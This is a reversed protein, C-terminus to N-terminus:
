KFVWYKQLTFNFGFAVFADVILRSIKYNIRFFETFVYTGTSKLFITGLAVTIFKPIQTKKSETTGEFTWYRNATYNVVAGCVGGIVISLVYHIGFFETLILMISYDVIGGCFASVQSRAFVAIFSDKNM